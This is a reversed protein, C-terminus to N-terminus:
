NKDNQVIPFTLTLETYEDVKSDIKYKGGYIKLLKLAIILGLGSGQQEHINRNFQMYAGIDSLRDRAIGIGNDKIIIKYYNSDIKSQVSVLQGSKSFKFANDALEECIKLFHDEHIKIQTNILNLKLDNKRHYNKAYTQFIDAILKQTELLFTDNQLHHLRYNDRTLLELETYFLYNIILKNLRKASTNINEYLTILEEKNMTDNYELLLQSSGLIGNLPTRFEHPLITSISLRLENLKSETKDKRIQEKAFRADITKILDLSKFPKTIFDDAGFGMGERIDERESKATLFIFPTTAFKENKQLSELVQYGNIGPMMIDCLILDPLYKNALKLGIEGNKASYVTYKDNTLLDVLGDRVMEEDEIVLIIKKAVM